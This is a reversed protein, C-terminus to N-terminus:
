GRIVILVVVLLVWAGHCVFVSAPCCWGRVARSPGVGGVFLAVLAWCCGRVMACSFRLPTGGGGVFPAVLAWWCWGRIVRRAGLLVAWCRWRHVAVLAWYWSRRALDWALTCSRRRPGVVVVSSRRVLAWVVMCWPGAGDGIFPSSSGTGGGVFPTSAVFSTCGGRIFGVVWLRCGLTVWLRCVRCLVLAWWGRVRVSSSAGSVSSPASGPRRRRRSCRGLAGGGLRQRPVGMRTYWTSPSKRSSSRGHGRSGVVLFSSSVVGWGRVIFAWGRVVLACPCRRGGWERVTVVGWPRRRRVWPRPV